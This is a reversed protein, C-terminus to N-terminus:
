SEIPLEEDSDDYEEEFLEDDEDLEDDSLKEVLKFLGDFKEEKNGKNVPDNNVLSANPEDLTKERSAQIRAFYITGCEPSCAVDQWRFLGTRRNTKCYEYTKGCVKCTRTGVAM